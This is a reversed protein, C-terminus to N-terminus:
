LGQNKERTIDISKGEGTNLQIGYEAPKIEGIVTFDDFEAKLKEVDEKNLTFLMEYDEGGYFAYRDVDEKMEDAVKRTELSVPVAPIFIECGLNNAEAILQMENVLGHSVDVQSTPQVEAKEYYDGLDHRALPMLQRGVVYEYEELDPQFHDGGSEKWAKKERLLVRLGAMAGGLDGTVCIQDGISCGELTIMENESVIGEVHVAAVLIQHSATTDGAQISCNYINGAKDFGDYIQELMSVSIKNPVALDIRVSVPRANVAYLHSIAASLLKHGLHKLPTYVLDFHVGELYIGSSTILRNDQKKSLAKISANKVKLPIIEDRDAGSYKKLKDYLSRIGIDHITQFAQEQMSSFLFPM